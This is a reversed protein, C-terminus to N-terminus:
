WCYFWHFAVGTLLFSPECFLLWSSNEVVSCVFGLFCHSFAALCQSRISKTWEYLTWPLCFTDITSFAQIFTIHPVTFNCLFAFPRRSHLHWGRKWRPVSSKPGCKSTQTIKKLETEESVTWMLVVPYVSFSSDKVGEEQKLWLSTVKCKRKSYPYQLGWFASYVFTLAFAVENGTHTCM